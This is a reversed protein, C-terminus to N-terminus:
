LHLHIFHSSYAGAYYNVTSIRATENHFALFSRISICCCSLQDTERNINMLRSYQRVYLQRSLYIFPMDIIDVGISTGPM